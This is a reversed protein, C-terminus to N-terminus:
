ECISTHRSSADRTLTTSPSPRLPTPAINTWKWQQGTAESPSHSLRHSSGDRRWSRQCHSPWPVTFWLLAPPPPCRPTLDPPKVAGQKPATYHGSSLRGSLILGECHASPLVDGGGEEEEAEEEGCSRPVQSSCLLASSIHATLPLSPCESFYSSCFIVVFLVSKM